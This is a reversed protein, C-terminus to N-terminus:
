LMLPPVFQVGGKNDTLKALETDRLKLRKFYQAPDSSDTLAEIVDNVVFWWENRYLTKRIGKGKFIAIKTIEEM